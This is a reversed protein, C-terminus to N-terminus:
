VLGEGRKLRSRNRISYIMAGLMYSPNRRQVMMRVLQVLNVYQTALMARFGMRHKYCLYCRNVVYKYIHNKSPIRYEKSVLHKVRIRSDLVCRLGEKKSRKYYSYSFDLDEAYAYGTLKEDWSIGWQQVYTKKIAFFYGMAWETEIQGAIKSLSPFRGLMSRTVHGINRKRFSKTGAICAGFSHGEECSLDDIGAIMSIEPDQITHYLHTLTDPYVDVDDDSFVVIEQSTRSVGLNRAKTSSPQEEYLYVRRPLEEYAYLNEENRKRQEGDQSQDVVVIEAPIDRSAMLADLTRKLAVPRGMTPIVVSIPLIM